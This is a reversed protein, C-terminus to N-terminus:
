ETEEDTNNDSVLILYELFHVFVLTDQKLSIIHNIIIFILSFIFFPDCLYLMFLFLDLCPCLYVLCLIYRLVIIAIHSLGSLFAHTPWFARLWHNKAEQYLNVFILLQHFIKQNPMSLFPHSWDPRQVKFNVTDWSHASPILQNKAHQYLNM